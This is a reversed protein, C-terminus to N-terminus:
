AFMAITYIPRASYQEFLSTLEDEAAAAAGDSHLARVEEAHIGGEIFVSDIGAKEAGARLHAVHLQGCAEADVFFQSCVAHCFAAGAIDHELSDGIAICRGVPLLNAAAEYIVPDPKGLLLVQALSAAAGQLQHSRWSHRGDVHRARFTVCAYM